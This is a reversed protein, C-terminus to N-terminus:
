ENGVRRLKQEDEEGKERFPDRVVLDEAVSLDFFPALMKVSLPKMLSIYCYLPVPKAGVTSKIELATRGFSIVPMKNRIAEEVYDYLMLPYLSHSKNFEYNIGVLHAEFHGAAFVASSFGVLTEGLYFGKFTFHIDLYKKMAAFYAANVESFHVAAKHHVNRYLVDIKAANQRIDKESFEKIRIEASKKLVNKARVRYKSSLENLYDEFSLWEKPLNMIMNPEFFFKRYGEKELFPIAPRGAEYFDKIVIGAIRGNEGARATIEDMLSPLSDELGAHDITKNVYIGHEGSLFVNGCFMIFVPSAYLNKLLVNRSGKELGALAKGFYKPNLFSGADDLQIRLVQFYLFAAPQGKKEVCAYAFHLDAPKSDELAKLYSPTLFINKQSFLMSRFSVPAEDFTGFLHVQYSENKGMPCFEFAGKIKRFIRSFTM